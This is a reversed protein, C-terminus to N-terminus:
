RKPGSKLGRIPKAPNGFYSGDEITNKTVVSGMGVSTNEMINLNDKVSVGLGLTSTREVLCNGGILTGVSMWVKEKVTVGHGINCLNGIVVDNEITTPQLTGKVIVANAGVEVNSGITVGSLHPFRLVEGNKAKYLAIGPCGVVTNERIISNAGIYTGRKLVVGASIVAGEEVVVEEELVATTAIESSPHIGKALKEFSQSYFQNTESVYELMKIFVYRPDSTVICPMNDLFEPVIYLVDDVLEVSDINELFCVSNPEADRGDTIQDIKLDEHLHLQADISIQDIFQVFESKHWSSTLTVSM